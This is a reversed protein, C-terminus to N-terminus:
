DVLDLSRSIAREWGRHIHSRWESSLKPEFSDITHLLPGDLDYVNVAVGAAIAAGLVTTEKYHPRETRLRFLGRISTLDNTPALHAYPLLPSSGRKLMGVRLGLIDSQLQAFFDSNTIGGDIRLERLETGSDRKMAELVEAAQIAISEFTARCFHAKTIYETLGVIM